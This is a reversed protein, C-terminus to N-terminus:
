QNWETTPSEVQLCRLHHEKHFYSNGFKYEIPCHHRYCLKKRDIQQKKHRNSASDMENCTNGAQQLKYLTIYNEIFFHKKISLHFGLNLEDLKRKVLFFMSFSCSKVFVLKREGLSKVRRRM